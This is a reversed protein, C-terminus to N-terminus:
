VKGMKADFTSQTSRTSLTLQTQGPNVEKVQQGHSVRVTVSRASSGLWMNVSTSWTQGDKVPESQQGTFVRFLGFGFGFWIKLSHVRVM